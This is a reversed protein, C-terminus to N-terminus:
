GQVITTVGSCEKLKFTTVGSCEKLKLLNDGRFVRKLKLLNDARFLRNKGSGASRTETKETGM